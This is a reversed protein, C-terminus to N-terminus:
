QKERREIEMEIPMGTVDANWTTCRWANGKRAEVLASLVAGCNSRSRACAGACAYAPLWGCMGEQVVFLFMFSLLIRVLSM